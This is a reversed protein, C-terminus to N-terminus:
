KPCSCGAQTTIQNNTCTTTRSLCAYYEPCLTCADAIDQPCLEALPPAERACDRYVQQMKDAYRECADVVAASECRDGYALEHTVQVSGFTLIAKAGDRLLARKKRYFEARAIGNPVAQMVADPIEFEGDDHMLCELTYTVDGLPQPSVYMLLRLPESNRGTWTLHLPGRALHTARELEAFSLAEPLEIGQVSVPAGFSGGSARFGYKGGFRPAVGLNTLEIGYSYYDGNSATTLEFPVEDGDDILVASEVSLFDVRPSTGLSHGRKVGCDDPGELPDIIDARQEGSGSVMYLQAMAGFYLASGITGVFQRSVAIEVTGNADPSYWSQDEVVEGMPKTATGTKHQAIIEPGSLMCDYDRATEYSRDAYCRGDVELVNHCAYNECTAYKVKGTHTRAADADLRRQLETCLATCQTTEGLECYSFDKDGFLCEGVRGYVYCGLGSPGIALFGSTGAVNCQCAPGSVSSTGTDVGFAICEASDFMKGNTTSSTLASLENQASAECTADDTCEAAGIGGVSPANDKAAGAEATAGADAESTSVVENQRTTPGADSHARAAGADVVVAPTGSDPASAGVGRNVESSACGVLSVACVISVVHCLNMVTTLVIAFGM